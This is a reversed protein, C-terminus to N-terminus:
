KPSRLWEVRASFGAAAPTWAVTERRDNLARGPNGPNSTLIDLNGMLADTSM